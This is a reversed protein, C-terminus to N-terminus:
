FRLKLLDEPADIAISEITTSALQITYGNEIWRLQELSEARELASPKLKVLSELVEIRYAYIGIHKFYSHKDLWLQPPIDRYHPLAARSFYLAEKKNNFVVKPTNSNLLEDTTTIQKILTAIQTASSHFCAGLLDIQEPQIFPEYGQINVVIEYNSKGIKEIAEFCRDTGSLHSNCTMVVNGNFSKIHQEIREDDTAIVVKSLLASKSAQEYVRQIMTKGDIMVMPKGPFRTSNYRAPIIGIFKM